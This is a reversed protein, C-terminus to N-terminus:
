DLWGKRKKADPSPPKDNLRAIKRCSNRLVPTVYPTHLVFRRTNYYRM